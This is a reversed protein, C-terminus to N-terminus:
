QNHTHIAFFLTQKKVVVIRTILQLYEALRTCWSPFFSAHGKIQTFHLNEHGVSSM